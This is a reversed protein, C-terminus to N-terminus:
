NKFNKGKEKNHKGMKNCSISTFIYARSYFVVRTGDVKGRGWGGPLSTTSFNFIMCPLCEFVQCKWRGTENENM